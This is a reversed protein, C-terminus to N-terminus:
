RLRKSSSFKRFDWRKPPLRMTRCRKTCIHLWKRVRGVLNTKSGEKVMAWMHWVEFMMHQAHLTCSAQNGVVRGFQLWLHSRTWPELLEVLPWQMARHIHWHLHNVHCDICISAAADTYFFYSAQQWDSGTVSALREFMFMYLTHLYVYIHTYICISTLAYLRDTKHLRLSVLFSRHEGQGASFGVSHWKKCCLFVGKWSSNESKVITKEPIM